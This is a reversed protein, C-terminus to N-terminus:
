KTHDHQSPCSSFLWVTFVAAVNFMNSYLSINLQASHCQPLRDEHVVSEFYIQLHNGSLNCVSNQKFGSYACVAIVRYHQQTLIPGSTSLALGYAASGLAFRSYQLIITKFEFEWSFCQIVKPTPQCFTIYYNPQTRM